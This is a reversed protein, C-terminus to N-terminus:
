TWAAVACALGLVIMTIVYAVFCYACMLVYVVFVIALPGHPVVNQAIWTSSNFWATGYIAAAGACALAAIGLIRSVKWLEGVQLVVSGVCNGVGAGFMAWVIMSAVAEAGSHSRDSIGYAGGVIAGIVGWLLTIAFGRIVPKVSLLDSDDTM